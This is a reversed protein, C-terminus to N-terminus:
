KTGVQAPGYWTTQGASGVSELWYFYTGAGAIPLDEYRYSAGGFVV